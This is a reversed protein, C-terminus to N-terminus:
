KKSSYKEVLKVTKDYVEKGSLKKSEMEKIWEEKVPEVAKVWRSYESESLTNIEVKRENMLKKIYAEGDDAAKGFMEAAAMGSVKDVAKQVDPPLSEWSKKNMLVACPGVYLRADLTNTVVEELRYSDVGEWGISFGNIVGKELSTYIDPPNISIPVVGLKEYMKKPPGGPSRMKLNKIDELSTLKKGKTCFPAPGHTHLTIVKVDSYENQLAPTTEYLEWLVKSGVMASNINMLPLQMVQTLPMEGPFFGLFGWVLDVGGSTVLKLQQDAKALAGGPYIVIKVKGKTEEEVKKAWQEVAKGFFGTPSSYHALKLEIPKQPTSSPQDAKKNGASCGALLFLAVFLAVGASFLRKM